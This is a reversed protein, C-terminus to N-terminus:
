AAPAVLKSFASSRVPKGGVFCIMRFVVRGQKFAAHESRAIAIDEEIAFFYNALNGFVADGDEGLSPTFEHTLYPYGVLRDRPGSATDATFLPRGQTDKAIVISREVSDEVIHRAGARHGKTLAYELNVLDDYSVVDIAARNVETIAAAASNLGTPQNTGTGNLITRSWEYRASERFLATILAELDLASRRLMTLSLETWGSLENTTITFSGFTPETEGKDAGDTSKWTFAVGGFIGGGAGDELRPFSASGNVAPIPTCFDFLM